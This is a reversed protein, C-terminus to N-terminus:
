NFPEIFLLIEGRLRILKTGFGVHYFSLISKALNDEPRQVHAITFM